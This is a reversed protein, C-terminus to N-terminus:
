LCHKHITWKLRMVESVCELPHISNYSSNKANTLKIIFSILNESQNLNMDKMTKIKHHM